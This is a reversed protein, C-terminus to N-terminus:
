IRYIDNLRECLLKFGDSNRIGNALITFNNLLRTEGYSNALLAALKPQKEVLKEIFQEKKVGHFAPFILPKM